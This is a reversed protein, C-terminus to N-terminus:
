GEAKRLTFSIRTGRKPGSEAWIRGGHEEIIQKAIALGLGSGGTSTNRSQDARYFREFIFPLAEASIGPGDDGIQVQVMEQEDQVALTIRGYERDMYKVSNGVINTIVRKLKDRDVTCLLPSKASPQFTVAIGRKELELQLEETCDQLYENLDVQEFTFPLRKLDLKSFLFLEEILQDMATAKSEIITLYKDLKEPTNAVGDKIGEVYGKIATIPTKLDHSINSILEKRNEEYQLQLEISEKLKGRMEDFAVSLAGIEDKTQPVLKFSLNGEKIQETAQKLAGLPRLISRSVWYTLLGNTLALAVLLSIFILPFFRHALQQFHGSNKLVFVSVQEKGNVLVDRKQYTYSDQNLTLDDNKHMMSSSGYGPLQALLEPSNLTPSVYTFENGSRIVLGSKIANLEQDRDRLFQQDAFTQPAYKAIGVLETLIQEDGAVVRSFSEHNGFDIQYFEKASKIDGLFALVIFFVAVIFFFIPVVLMAIYSLLLRVRISM